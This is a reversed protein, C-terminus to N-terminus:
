RQVPKMIKDGVNLGSIIVTKNDAGAKGLRVFRRQVQNNELLWIFNLQGLTEIYNNPVKLVQETQAALLLRAYMGPMLAANYDLNAKVLFSRSATNATPVIEDIHALQTQNLSPIEVKLAQGQQLGMALQERVNAEVRLSIPNYIALLKQGPQATDGPEAFRNVVKGDIPAMISAYAAIAQAQTLAQKAATLEAKLSEFSAKSNDLETASILNEVFLKKARQLNNEAERYRASLANIREQAQLVQADLESRELEILLEGKKVTDGARVTIKEISALIRSSIITAQKAEIAGSIPEYIVQESYSLTYSNNNTSAQQLNNDLGPAVKEDFSGALWAVMTLLFIIASIPMLSNKILKTIM